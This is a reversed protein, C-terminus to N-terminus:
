SPSHQSAARTPLSPPCSFSLSPIFLPLPIIFLWFHPLPRLCGMGMKVGVVVSGGEEEEKKKKEV